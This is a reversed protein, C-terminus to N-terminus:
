GTTILSVTSINSIAMSIYHTKGNFRTCCVKTTTCNNCINCMMAVVWGFLVLYHYALILILGLETWRQSTGNMIQRVDCHDRSFFFTVTKVIKQQTSPLLKTKMGPCQHWKFWHLFSFIIMTVCSSRSTQTRTYLQSVSMHKNRLGSM